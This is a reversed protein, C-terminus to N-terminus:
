NKVEWANPIMFLLAVAPLASLLIVVSSVPTMWILVGEMLLGAIIAIAPIRIMGYTVFVVILSGLLVITWGILQLPIPSSAGTSVIAVINLPFAFDAVITGDTYTLPTTPTESFFEPFTEDGVSATNYAIPTIPGVTVTIASMDRVFTYAGDNDQNTLGYQGGDQVTGEWTWGDDADGADTQAVNSPEYDFDLVSSNFTWYGVLGAETGALQINYNDSIETPTRTDDWFRVDDILGDAALTATSRNGITLNDGIDSVRGALPATVETVSVSTDNIYIIPDNGAADADYTIAIHTSVGLFTQRSATRWEALTGGVNWYSLLHLFADNGSPGSINVEWGSSGITWKNLIIDANNLTDLTLWAEVTGGGDWLNQIPAADTVTVLSSSGNFDLADFFTTTHAAVPFTVSPTGNNASSSSDLQSSANRVITDDIYGDYGEGITMSATNTRITFAAATSAQVVDDVLLRLTAGDYTAEFDYTTDVAIPSYTVETVPYYTVTLYVWTVRSEGGTPCSGTNDISLKIQGAQLQSPLIDEWSGGGPAGISATTSTVYNTTSFTITQESESAGIRVGVKVPFSTNESVCRGRATGTVSAIQTGANLGMASLTYYSDLYGSSTNSYVYSTDGDNTSICDQQSGASCGVEILNAGSAGEAAGTPTGAATTTTSANSIRAYVTNTDRVGMEYAGYKRLLHAEATSISQFSTNESVLALPGTVDLDAADTIQVFESAGNLYFFQPNDGGSGGDGTYLAYQTAANAALSDVTLWATTGNTTIDQFMPPTEAGASQALLLTDQWDSGVYGANSWNLANISFAVPTNALATTSGAQVTITTQYSYDSVSQALVLGMPLAILGVVTAAIIGKLRLSTM